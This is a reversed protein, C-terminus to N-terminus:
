WRGSAKLEAISAAVNKRKYCKRLEYLTKERTRPIASLSQSCAACLSLPEGRMTRPFAVEKSSSGCNTCNRIYKAM